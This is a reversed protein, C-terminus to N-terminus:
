VFEVVKCEIKPKDSLSYWFEIVKAYLKEFEYFKIPMNLSCNNVELEEDEFVVITTHLVLEIFGDLKDPINVIQKYKSSDLNTKDVYFVEKLFKSEMGVRIGKIEDWRGPNRLFADISIKQPIFIANDKLQPILNQMISVQPENQLCAQM